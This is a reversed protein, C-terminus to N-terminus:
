HEYFLIKEGKNLQWCGVGRCLCDACNGGCILANDSPTEGKFIVNSEPLNYPNVPKLKEGWGSFIIVLNSPLEGHTAIYNNVVKYNKTFALFKCTPVKEAVEVMLAFFSADPIDGGVFYRFFRVTLAEAIIKYKVAEPNTRYANLNAQWSEGIIKRFNAMKLAYCKKKCDNCNTCTVVPPFSFSPVAGLKKNNKSITIKLEKM